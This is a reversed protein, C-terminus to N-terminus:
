NFMTLLNKKLTPQMSSTQKKFLCTRKFKLLCFMLHHFFVRSNNSNNNNNNNVSTTRNSNQFSDINNSTIHTSIQQNINVLTQIHCHLITSMSRSKSKLITLTKHADDVLSELLLTLDPTKPNCVLSEASQINVTLSAFLLSYIDSSESKPDGPFFAPSSSRPSCPSQANREPLPQSRSRSLPNPKFDPLLLPLFNPLFVPLDTHISLPVPLSNTPFFPPGPVCGPVRVIVPIPAILSSSVFHSSILEPSPVTIPLAPLSIM